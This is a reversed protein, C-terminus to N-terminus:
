GIRVIIDDDSLLEGEFALAGTGSLDYADLPRSLDPSALRACKTKGSLLVDETVIRFSEQQKDTGKAV